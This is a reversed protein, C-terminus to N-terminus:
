ETLGRAEALLADAVGRFETRWPLFPYYVMMLRLWLLGGIGDAFAFEM